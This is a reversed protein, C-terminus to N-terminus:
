GNLSANARDLKELKAYNLMISKRGAQEFDITVFADGGAGRMDAVTGRGFKQHVVVDGVSVDLPERELPAPLAVDQWSSGTSGVTPLPPANLYELGSMEGFFRSPPHMYASGYTMRRRAFTLYLDDMARTMGVYCLRREEEVESPDLLARNHPFTGEELGCLVVVPFELGKAMHLTMLTVASASEDMADLDSVLSITALFGLLDPGEREEYDRAVGILEQLNEIRSLSEPTNDAQLERVYGTEELVSVLLASPGREEGVRAFQEIDRLFAAIDRARKPAATRVVDENALAQAFTMGRRAGEDAIANLTSQGIGRRPANIIRRLSIGDDRNAIYRLYSLADKVELRAYFGVGGVIRYPMGESLMAEEVARSQANTRYLVAFDNFSRGEDRIGRRVLEIIFRAEERDTAAAYVYVPKGGERRTWLKKDHRQTNHAVLANAANLVHATSRYNRQLRFTQAGAFDREFRLIIRHDAGRFSYISQDDDGVVCLNGSGRSLARVMRYQAENVDQYEDVLVYRFRQSYNRATEDGRELLALAKMILDDFDLANAQTLRREYRAYVAAVTKSLQGEASDSFADASLCREKARSIQALMSGPPFHRDDLNLERLIEKILARQDTEDYIVFNPGVGVSSGDRRLIRVGISHFTGVWLGHANNGVLQALRSKLEGAAKNTFTVALIRHAPARGSALLHAVRHTLVRTKGSGAGAFILVAGETASAAAQQEENLSELPDM